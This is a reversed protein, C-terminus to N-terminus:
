WDGGTEVRFRVEPYADQIFCLVRDIDEDPPIKCIHVVQGDPCDMVIRREEVDTM